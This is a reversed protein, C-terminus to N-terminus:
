NQQTYAARVVWYCCDANMDFDYEIWENLSLLTKEGITKYIGYKLGDADVMIGPKDTIRHANEKSVEEYILIDGNKYNLGAPLNETSDIEIALLKFKSNSPILLHPLKLIFNDDKYQNVYDSIYLAPVFPVKVFQQAIKLKESELVIEANYHLLENVSLDKQIFHDLPIGFYNAIKIISEIKPEARFEEYSSINGRTLEFLEAFAQQSLGKVNRIKKINKGIHTM